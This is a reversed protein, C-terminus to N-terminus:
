VIGVGMVGVGIVGVVVLLVFVGLNVLYVFFVVM